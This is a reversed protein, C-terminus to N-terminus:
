LPDTALLLTYRGLHLEDVCLTGTFRELTRHRREPLNLQRLHWDLCDYIFGESLDLDFDRKMAARTRQVNLGDELLRDLAAQRVTNDYDAKPLVGPPCSRFSKCCRCRAKYEAYHIDLWAIRGYALSRVKRQLRRVRRGNKGCRPCPYLNSRN